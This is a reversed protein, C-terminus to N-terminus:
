WLFGEKEWGLLKDMEGLKDQSGLIVSVIVGRGNPPKTAVVMCNGAEDIYGTKGAIIEPYKALLKNTNALHHTFKGDSSAIDAEPTQMIYNLLPYKIVERMIRAVDKATSVNEIALGSPDSFRTALLGIDDAKKNMFEMFRGNFKEALAVAADNSSESLMIWLFSEITLTEGAVLGGTEGETDVANKTITIEDKLNARDMVVLATVLKSLSAIPRIAQPEKQLLIKNSDTDLVYVSQATLEPEPVNWRRIPSFPDSVPMLFANQAVPLVAGLYISQEPANSAAMENRAPSADDKFLNTGFWVAGVIVLVSALKLFYSADLQNQSTTENQLSTFTLDM